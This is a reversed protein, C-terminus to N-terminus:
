RWDLGLTLTLANALFKQYEMVVTLANRPRAWWRKSEFSDYPTPASFIQVHAQRLVRRFIFRARRSASKSTILVLSHPSRGHLFTAVLRAEGITGNAFTPLMVIRERPVGAAVLIRESWQPLSPDFLKLAILEKRVEDTVGEGEIKNPPEPIAWVQGVRGQRYLDSAAFARSIPLGSLVLAVDAHTFADEAVLFEGAHLFCAGSGAVGAILLATLVGLRRRRLAPAAQRNAM